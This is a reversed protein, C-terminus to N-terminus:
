RRRFWGIFTLWTNHVTKKIDKALPDVGLDVRVARVLAMQAGVIKGYQARRDDKKVSIITLQRLHAAPQLVQDAAIYEALSLLLPYRALESTLKDRSVPNEVHPMDEMMIIPWLHVIEVACEVLQKYVAFREKYVLEKFKEKLLFVQFVITGAIGLLAAGAGILATFVPVFDSM